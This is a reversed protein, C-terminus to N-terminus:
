DLDDYYGVKQLAYYIDNSRADALLFSEECGHASYYSAQKSFAMSLENLVEKSAIIKGLGKINVTMNEGIKEQLGYTHVVLVSM